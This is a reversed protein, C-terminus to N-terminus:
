LRRFVKLIGNLFVTLKSDDYWLAIANLTPSDAILHSYPIMLKLYHKFFIPLLIQRKEPDTELYVYLPDEQFAEALISAAQDLSDQQIYYLTM